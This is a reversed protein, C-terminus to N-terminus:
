HQMAWVIAAGLLSTLGLIAMWLAHRELWRRVAGPRRRPRGPADNEHNMVLWDHWATTLRSQGTELDVALGQVMARETTLARGLSISFPAGVITQTFFADTQDM